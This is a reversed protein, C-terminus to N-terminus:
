VKPANDGIGKRILDNKKFELAILPNLSERDDWGSLIFLDAINNWKIEFILRPYIGGVYCLCRGKNDIKIGNWLYDFGPNNSPMKIAGTYRRIMLNETFDGFFHSCDENFERPLCRGTEYRWERRKEIWDKFGNKQACKDNYEKLTKCGANEITKRCIERDIDTPNKLIRNQQMWQIFENGSAFGLRKIDELREKNCPHLYGHNKMIKEKIEIITNRRIDDINDYMNNYVDKM